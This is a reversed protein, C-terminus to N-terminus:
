RSVPESASARSRSRFCIAASLCDSLRGLALLEVHPRNLRVWCRSEWGPWPADRFRSASAQRACLVVRM